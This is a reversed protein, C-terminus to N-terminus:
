VHARGIEDPLHIDVVVIDPNLSAIQAIAEHRSSAEGVVTFSTDHALARRLGERVIEHDDVVLIRIMKKQFM